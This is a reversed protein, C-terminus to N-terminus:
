QHPAGAPVLDLAHPAPSRLLPSITRSPLPEGARELWRAGPGIVGLRYPLAYEDTVKAAKQYAELSNDRSPIAAAEPSAGSYSAIRGLGIEDVIKIPDTPDM